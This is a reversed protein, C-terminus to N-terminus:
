DSAEWLRLQYNVKSSYDYIVRMYILSYDKKDWPFSATSAWLSSYMTCHNVPPHCRLWEGNLLM